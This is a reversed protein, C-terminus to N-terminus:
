VRTIRVRMNKLHQKSATDIVTRAYEPRVAVLSYDAALTIRGIAQSPLDCAKMLFGAIDGRSIKRKKGANIHLLTMRPKVANELSFDPYYEHDSIVFEPVDEDPGVIAYVDGRAGARATRGNRHTYAQETVPLHYHVVADVGDIDLGRAALDTAVLVPTADSTFRAVATERLRQEMGGHYEQADIGRQRLLSVVREVSERHNVFVMVRGERCIARLLAALADIKDRQASPVTMVTIRVDADASVTEANRLNLFSPVDTLPTASTLLTHSVNGIRRVIRRLEDQFGLELTKDYEDIALTQIDRPVLTQRQLHDLLRGPTAVVIAPTNASLTAAETQFSNGGYLAMVGVAGKCLTKLVDAIQMVLERSPAVVVALPCGARVPVIDTRALMAAGFALTKGSGTPAILILDPAKCAM